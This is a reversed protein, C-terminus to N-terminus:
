TEPPSDVVPLTVTFTTGQGPTSDVSIEGNMQQVIYYSISLGLGTGEGEPRTTFFPDFIRERIDEPIGHGSDTFQIRIHGDDMLHTSITIKGKAGIAKFANSLLNVFVQQLLSPSGWYPPLKRDLKIEVDADSGSISSVM